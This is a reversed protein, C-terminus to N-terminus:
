PLKAAGLESFNGSGSGSYERPRQTILRSSRGGGRAGRGRTFSWVLRHIDGAQCRHIMSTVMVSEHQFHNDGSGAVEGEWATSPVHLCPDGCVVENRRRGAQRVPSPLLLGEPALIVGEEDAALPRPM